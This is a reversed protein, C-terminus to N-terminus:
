CHLAHPPPAGGREMARDTLYEPGLQLRQEVSRVLQESNPLRRALRLSRRNCIAEIRVRRDAAYVFGLRELWVHTAEHALTVALDTSVTAKDCVHERQLVVLREDRWWEAPFGGTTGFVFVGDTHNILEDLARADHQRIFDLADRLKEFLPEVVASGESITVPLGHLVRRESFRGMWLTLRSPRSRRAVAAHGMRTVTRPQTVMRDIRRTDRDAAPAFARERSLEGNM